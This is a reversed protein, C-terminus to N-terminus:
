HTKLMKHVFNQHVTKNHDRTSENLSVTFNRAVFEPVEDNTPNIIIYFPVHASTHEGDSVCLMFQDATPEMRQHRSQVYNVHGDMIDKYSFSAPFFFILYFFFM